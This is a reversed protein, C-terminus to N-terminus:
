TLGAPVSGTRIVIQRRPFRRLGVEFSRLGSGRPSVFLRVGAVVLEEFEEVDSPPSTSARARSWAKGVDEAWVFLRGGHEQIFVRASPSIKVEMAATPDSYVARWGLGGDGKRL